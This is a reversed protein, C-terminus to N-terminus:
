KDKEKQKLVTLTSNPGLSQRNQNGAVFSPAQIARLKCTFVVQAPAIPTASIAPAALLRSVQEKEGKEMLEREDGTTHEPDIMTLM